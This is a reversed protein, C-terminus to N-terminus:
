HIAYASRLKNAWILGKKAELVVTPESSEGPVATASSLPCLSWCFSSETMLGFSNNLNVAKNRLKNRPPHTACNSGRKVEGAERPEPSGVTLCTWAPNSTEMSSNAEALLDATGKIGVDRGM